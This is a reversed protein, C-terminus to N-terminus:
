TIVLVAKCFLYKLQIKFILFAFSLFNPWPNKKSITYMKFKCAPFYVHEQMTPLFTFTTSLKAVPTLILYLYFM